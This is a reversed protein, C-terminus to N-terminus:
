DSCERMAKSFSTKKETKSGVCRLTPSTKHLRAAGLKCMTMHRSTQGPTAKCPENPRSTARKMLAAREPANVQPQTPEHSHHSCSCAAHELQPQWTKNRHQTSALPEVQPSGPPGQSRSMSPARWLSSRRGVGRRSAHRWLNM